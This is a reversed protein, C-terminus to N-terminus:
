GFVKPYPPRSNELCFWIRDMVDGCRDEKADDAVLCDTAKSFLSPCGERKPCKEFRAKKESDNEGPKKKNDSIEGFVSKWFQKDCPNVKRM